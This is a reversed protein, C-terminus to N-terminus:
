VTKLLPTTTSWSMQTILSSTQNVASVPKFVPTLKTHHSTSLKHKMFQTVITKMSKAAQSSHPSQVAHVKKKRVAPCRLSWAQTNGNPGPRVKHLVKASLNKMSVAAPVKTMQRHWYIKTLLARTRKCWLLLSIVSSRNNKHKLPSLWMALQPENMTVWWKRLTKVRGHNKEQSGVILSRNNLNRPWRISSFSTKFLSAWGPRRTAWLM